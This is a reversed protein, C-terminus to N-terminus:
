SRVIRPIGNKLDFIIRVDQIKYDIYKRINDSFIIKVAVEGIDIVGTQVQFSDKTIFNNHILASRISEKINELLAPTIMRGEYLDLNAGYETDFYWDNQSSKIRSEVEEIFGLGELEMTDKLDGYEFIFDGNMSFSLDTKQVSMINLM